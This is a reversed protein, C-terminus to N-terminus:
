CWRPLGMRTLLLGLPGGQHDLPERQARLAPVRGQDRTLSSRVHWMTHVGGWGLLIFTIPAHHYAVFTVITHHSTVGDSGVGKVCM